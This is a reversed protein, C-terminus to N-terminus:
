LEVTMYSGNIKIEDIMGIIFKKVGGKNQVNEGSQQKSGVIGLYDIFIVNSDNFNHFLKVVEMGVPNKM